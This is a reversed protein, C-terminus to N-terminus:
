VPRTRARLRIAHVVAGMTATGVAAVPNFGAGVFGVVGWLVAGSAVSAIVRQLQVDRLLSWRLLPGVVGGLAAGVGAAAAFAIDYYPFGHGLVFLLALM